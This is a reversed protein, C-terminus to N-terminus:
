KIAATLLPTLATYNVAKFSIAPELEQGSSDIQAPRNVVRVLEPLVTEMEQAIFGMQEGSPLHLYPFQDVSYQYTRPQLQEILALAGSLEDVDTKLSADSGQYTGGNSYTSGEFWAAWDNSPDTAGSAAGWLGVCLDSNSNARAIGMVGITEAADQGGQAGTIDALGYVGVTSRAGYASGRVGMARMTLLPSQATAPSAQGHVGTIWQGQEYDFSSEGYIADPALLADSNHVVHLKFKPIQIGIGVGHRRNWTCNSGDYTNSVHPPTNPFIDQVVWDCGANLNINRWKVVGRENPDNTDDVVIVKFAQDTEPDDPLQRIRLRGDLVDVREAPQMAATLFDGVGLYGQNGGADPLLRIIELGNLMNAVSTNDPQSAFVFSLADPGQGQNGTLDDSWSLVSQTGGNLNRMGVYLGDSQETCFVGVRMWPRYGPTIGTIGNYIHLYTLPPNPVPNGVGLHGSFDLANTNYWGFNQNILTPTLRMRLTNNTWWEIPQNLDHRVMLPFNNTVTNDWGLFDTPGSAVNSPTTVQGVVKGTTLLLAGLILHKLFNKTRM